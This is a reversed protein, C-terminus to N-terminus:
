HQPKLRGQAILAARVQAKTLAPDNLNSPASPEEPAGKKGWLAYVRGRVSLHQAVLKDHEDRLAAVESKVQRLAEFVDADTIPRVKTRRFLWRLM